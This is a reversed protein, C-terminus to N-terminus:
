WTVSEGSLTTDLGGFTVKIGKSLRIQVWGLSTFHGEYLLWEASLCAAVTAGTRYEIDGVGSGTDYKDFNIMREVAGTRVVGLTWTETDDIEVTEADGSGVVSATGSGDAWDRIYDEAVSTDRGWCWEGAGM